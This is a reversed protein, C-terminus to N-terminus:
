IRRRRWLQIGILVIVASAILLSIQNVMALPPPTVDFFMGPFRVMIALPRGYYGYVGEANRSGMNSYIIYLFLLPVAPLPNKFLLAAITYVCVIMLMNPLIYQCTSLLFDTLRIEFGNGNTCIICAVWFVLNLIGLILLCILFGGAVKGIVYQTASIPKTHLLEYTNKRMDQMFLDALLITAAFGMFVGAFDAFKRSFYWSFPHEELENKIYSNIEDMTGKRYTTVQWAYTADYGYTDELYHRAEDIEMGRVKQIVSSAEDNSIGFDSVLNEQMFNEWLEIHEETSVRIYGESVDGDHTIEPYENKLENGSTIYHINLYPSLQQFVGLTVVAIAIWFLPRKLYNLIERRIIAKMLTVEKKKSDKNYIGFLLLFVIAFFGSREHSGTFYLPSM